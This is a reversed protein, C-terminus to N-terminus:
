RLEIWSSIILTCSYTAGIPVIFTYNFSNNFATYSAVTVGGVIISIGSNMAGNLAVLIPKGTSNTYTTGSVRTSTVNQYTQNLGLSSGATSQTTGDPFVIGKTVDIKTSM